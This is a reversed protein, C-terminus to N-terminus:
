IVKPRTTEYELFMVVKAATIPFAPITTWLPDKAHLQMQYQGWWKEYSSVALSYTRATQKDHQELVAQRLRVAHSAADLKTLSRQLGSGLCDGPEAPMAEAEGEPLFALLTPITIPTFALESSSAGGGFDGATDMSVDGEPGLPLGLCSSLTSEGHDHAAALTVSQTASETRQRKYNLASTDTPSCYIPNSTCFSMEIFVSTLMLVSEAIPICM